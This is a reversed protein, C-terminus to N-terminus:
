FGLPFRVRVTASGGSRISTIFACRSFLFLLPLREAGGLVVVIQDAAPGITRYPRGGCEGAGVAREETAAFQVARVEVRQAVAM